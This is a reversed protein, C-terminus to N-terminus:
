DGVLAVFPPVFPLEFRETRRVLHRVQGTSAHAAGVTDAVKAYLPDPWATEDTLTRGELYELVQVLYEDFANVFGGDRDAIPRAVPVRGHEALAALLPLDSGLDPRGAGRRRAL